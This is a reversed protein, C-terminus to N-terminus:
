KVPEIKITHKVPVVSAAVGAALKVDKKVLATPVQTLAKDLADALEPDGERVDKQLGNFGSLHSKYYTTEWDQKGRVTQRVKQFPESFPNNLFEAALNIGKALDAAKFEKSTPGWTVRVLADPHDGAGTVVLKFRNLDENFPFFEIIGATANPDEPKGYFCFPYRTSEVEVAGREFSLVKHGDTATAKGTTLDVTVTGINGDCGMAKLFAYAMVLHGNNAPHVGDGGGVHYKPGYKAKAKAMADMMVDHVNAFTCGQDQAVQKALDSMSALTKNYMTAQEPNNRFTDSDVAGPSGVVVLRVGGKKLEQVLRTMGETYAKVTGPEIPKYGGDNMGYCTTVVTPHISLISGPGGRNWLWGMSDGSWGFQAARIPGDQQCAALYTEIFGSYEKQETISDGCVAVVDGAQVKDAARASSVGAAICLSVALAALSRIGFSRM